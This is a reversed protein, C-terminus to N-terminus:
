HDTTPKCDDIALRSLVWWALPPRRSPIDGPSHRHLTCPLPRLASRTRGRVASDRTEGRINTAPRRFLDRNHRFRASSRAESARPRIGTHTRTGGVATADGRRPPRHSSTLHVHPCVHSAMLRSAAVFPVLRHIDARPTVALM